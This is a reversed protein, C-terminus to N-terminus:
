IPMSLFHVDTELLMMRWRCQDDPCENTNAGAEETMKLAKIM